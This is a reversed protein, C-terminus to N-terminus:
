KGKWVPKRKEVFARTGEKADETPVITWHFITGAQAFSETVPLSLGNWAITKLARVSLPANQHSEECIALCTPILEKLPVVKTVLGIHLAEKADIRRGTMMFEMAYSYPIVRPLLVPTIGPILGRKIESAEFKANESAIRIDCGLAIELGGGMCYGNIAAIVPKNINMPFLTGPGAPRGVRGVALPDRRTVVFSKGTERYDRDAGKLDAGACFAKEGAGTLIVTWVEPDAMAMDRVKEFDMGGGYANMAEPRNMTIIATRGRKEYLIPGEKIMEEAM